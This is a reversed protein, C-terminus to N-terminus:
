TPRVRRSQSPRQVGARSGSARGGGVLRGRGGPDRWVRTRQANLLVLKRAAQGDVHSSPGSCRERADVQDHPAAGGGIAGVRAHGSQRRLEHPFATGAIPKRAPEGLPEASQSRVQLDLGGAVDRPEAHQHGGVTEIRRKAHESGHGPLRPHREGSEAPDPLAGQRARAIQPADAALPWCHMVGETTGLFVKGEAIIPQNWSHIREGAIHHLWALKFPPQPSDTTAGTRQPTCARQPWDAGRATALAAAIGLAWALARIRKM